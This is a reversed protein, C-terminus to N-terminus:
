EASLRDHAYQCNKKSYIFHISLGLNQALGPDDTGRGMRIKFTRSSLCCANRGM